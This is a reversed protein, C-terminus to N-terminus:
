VTKLYSYASLATKLENLFLTAQQPSLMASKIKVEFNKVIIKPDFHIHNLIYEVSDGRQRHGIKYGTETFSIDVSHTDGFLNHMDGLIEQYAGVLFFGMLYSEDVKISHLRISQEIHNHEIYHDIRGDSDCTIDRLVGRQLPNELLRQLPMIPFIQRLAWIDPLSQFLSFNCFYKTALKQNITDTFQSDQDQQANIQIQISELINRYLSEAQARQGLDRKGQIFLQHIENLLLTAQQHDSQVASGTLSDLLNEMQRLEACDIKSLTDEKLDHHSEHEIVNTILVAHHATIARGSETFIDPHPIDHQTCIDSFANVICDAYTQFDYNISFHDDSNSGNYDVGLGGGVDICKIRSGLKHLQVLFQASEACAREIYKIDPIQSGLHFHLLHLCDLLQNQKLSDVVALVDNASLGFKSKDGGTNQWAGCGASNLQIRIGLRPKLNLLKAQQLLLSLESFKELVIFTRYGLQQSILALRIYDKDKYGNCIIVGQPKTMLSLIALLETKSGSELGVTQSPHNVIADVVSYQQNVKIPYVLSFQGRYNNKEISHEFCSYLKKLRDHLIDIFRILLPFDFGDDRLQTAIGSLSVGPHNPNEPHLAKVEGTSNIDFYNQGWGNINYLERAHNKTWDTM